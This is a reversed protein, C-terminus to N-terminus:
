NINCAIGGIIYFFTEDASSMKGDFLFFIGASRIGQEGGERACLRHLLSSVSSEDAGAVDRGAEVGHVIFVV